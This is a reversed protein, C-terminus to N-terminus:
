ATASVMVVPECAECSQMALRLRCRSSPRRALLDDMKALEDITLGKSWSTSSRSPIEAGYGVHATSSGGPGAM